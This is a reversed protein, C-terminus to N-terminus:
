NLSSQLVRRAKEFCLMIMTKYFSIVSDHGYVAKLFIHHEAIIRYEPNEVYLLKVISQDLRKRLQQASITINLALNATFNVFALILEKGLAFFTTDLLYVVGSPTILDFVEEELVYTMLVIEEDSMQSEIQENVLLLELRNKEPVFEGHSNLSAILCAKYNKNKM